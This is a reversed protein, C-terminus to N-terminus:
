VYLYRYQPQGPASGFSTFYTPRFASTAQKYISSESSPLLSEFLPSGSKLGSNYVIAGPKKQAAKKSKDEDDDKNYEGLGDRTEAVDPTRSLLSIPKLRAAPKNRYSPPQPQVAQNNQFARDLDFWYLKQWFYMANSHSARKVQSLPSIQMYAQGRIKYRTWTPLKPNEFPTPDGYKAFNTWMMVMAERTDMDEETVVSEELMFPSNFLFSLDDYATVGFDKLKGNSAAGTNIGFIEVMSKSPQHNLEYYYLPKEQTRFNLFFICYDVVRTSLTSM